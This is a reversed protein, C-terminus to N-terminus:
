RFFPLTRLLERHDVFFSACVDHFFPMFLFFCNGNAATATENGSQMMINIFTFYNCNNQIVKAREAMKQLSGEDNVDAIIIPIGTLDDNAKAGIEKLTDKLKTENRGAVGWTLNRLM